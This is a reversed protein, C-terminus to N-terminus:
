AQAADNDKKNAEEALAAELLEQMPVFVLMGTFSMPKTAPKKSEMLIDLSEQDDCTIICTGQCDLASDIAQEINKLTHKNILSSLAKTNGKAILIVLDKFLQVDPAISIHMTVMSPSKKTTKNKPDQIPEQATPDIDVDFTPQTSIISTVPFCDNLGKQTSFFLLENEYPFVTIWRTDTTEKSAEDVFSYAKAMLFKQTKPDKGLELQKELITVAAAYNTLTGLCTILFFRSAINM